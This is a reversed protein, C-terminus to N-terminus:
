EVRLVVEELPSLSSSSLLPSSCSSRSCHRCCLVPRTFSCVVVTVAPRHNDPLVSRIESLGCHRRRHRYQHRHSFSRHRQLLSLLRFLLLSLARHRFERDNVIIRRRKTTERSMDNTAVRHHPRCLLSLWRTTVVMGAGDPVKDYALTCWGVLRCCGVM